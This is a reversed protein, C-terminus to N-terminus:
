EVITHDKPCWEGVLVLDQCAEVQCLNDNSTCGRQGDLALLGMNKLRMCSFHKSVLELRCPLEQM